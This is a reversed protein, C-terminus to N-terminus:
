PRELLVNMRYCSSFAMKKLFGPGPDTLDFDYTQSVKRWPGSIGLYTYRDYWDSFISFSNHDFERVHTPDGRQWSGAWWPVSIYFKGSRQMCRFAENMIFILEYNHELVQSAVIESISEDPFPWPKEIDLVVDVGDFPIKDINIFDPRIDHGCGINLKNISSSQDFLM